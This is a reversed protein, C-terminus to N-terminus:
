VLIISALGIVFAIIISVWTAFQQKNFRIEEDTEFDNEVLSRLEQSVTYSYYMNRGIPLVGEGCEKFWYANKEKGVDWSQTLRRLDIIEAGNNISIISENLQHAHRKGIICPQTKAIPVIIIYREKVLLDILSILETIYGYAEKSDYDYKTKKLCIININYRPIIAIGRKELFKSENLVEAISNVSDNYKVLARM